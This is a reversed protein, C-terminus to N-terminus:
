LSCPSGRARCLIGEEWEHSWSATLLYSCLQLTSDLVGRMECLSDEGEGQNIREGFPRVSEGMAINTGSGILIVVTNALVGTM